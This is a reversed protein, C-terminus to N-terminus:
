PSAEQTEPVTEGAMTSPEYVSGSAQEAKTTERAATKQMDEKLKEERPQMKEQPFLRGAHDMRRTDSSVGRPFMQQMIRGHESTAAQGEAPTSRSAAEESGASGASGRHEADSPSAAVPSDSGSEGTEATKRAHVKKLNMPSSISRQDPKGDKRILVGEANRIPKQRTRKGSHDFIDGGGGAGRRIVRGRESGPVLPRYYGDEDVEAGTWSEHEWAPTGLDPPPLKRPRGPLRRESFATPLPPLQRQSEPRYSAQSTELSAGRPRGEPHPPGIGFTARLRKAAEQTDQFESSTSKRKSPVNVPIWGGAYEGHPSQGTVESLRRSREASQTQSSPTPPAKPDELRRLRRKIIDLQLKLGDIEGAKNSANAVTESLMELAAPDEITRESSTVSPRHRIEERLGGIAAWVQQMDVQLRAIAAEMRTQSNSSDPDSLPRVHHYAM